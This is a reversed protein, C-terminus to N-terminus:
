LDGILRRSHDSNQTYCTYCQPRGGNLFNVFRWKEAITWPMVVFNPLTFGTTIQFNKFDLIASLRCKLCQFFQWKVAVAMVYLTSHSSDYRQATFFFCFLQIRCVPLHIKRSRTLMYSSAFFLLKIFSFSSIFCNLHWSIQKHWENTLLKCASLSFTILIKRQNATLM